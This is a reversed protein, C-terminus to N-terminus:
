RDCGRASAGELIQECTDHFARWLADNGFVADRAAAALTEDDLSALDRRHDEDDYHARVATPAFSVRLGTDVDYGTMLIARGIVRRLGEQIQVLAEHEVDNSGGEIATHATVTLAALAPLPVAAFCLQSPNTTASM